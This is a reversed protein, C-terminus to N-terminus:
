RQASPQRQCECSTTDPGAFWFASAELRVDAHQWAHAFEGLTRAAARSRGQARQAAALGYLAWGSGPNRALDERYIREAEPAHGAILLQAG